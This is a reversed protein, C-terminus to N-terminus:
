RQGSKLPVDVAYSALCAVYADRTKSPSASVLAGLLLLTSPGKDASPVRRRLQILEAPKGQLRGKGRRLSYGDGADPAPEIPGWAEDSVGGSIGLWRGAGFEVLPEHIARHEIVIVVATEDATRTLIGFHNGRMGDDLRLKRWGDPVSIRAVFKGPKDYTAIAGALPAVNAAAPGLWSPAAPAASTSAAAPDAAAAGEAASPAIDATSTPGAGLADVTPPSTAIGVTSPPDDGCGLLSSVCLLAVVRWNLEV